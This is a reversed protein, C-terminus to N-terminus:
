RHPDSSDFIKKFGDLHNKFDRGFEVFRALAPLTLIECWSRDSIWEPAPNDVKTPTTTGGALLYRWEDQFFFVNSSTLQTFM